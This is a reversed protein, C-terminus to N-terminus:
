QSDRTITFLTTCRRGTPGLVRPRGQAQPPFVEALHRLEHPPVDARVRRQAEAQLAAPAGGLRRIAHKGCSGSVARGQTVWLASPFHESAQQTSPRPPPPPCVPPPTGLEAEIVEARSGSHRLGDVPQRMPRDRQVERGDQRLHHSAPAGESSGRAM